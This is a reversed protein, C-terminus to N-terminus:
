CIRLTRRIPSMSPTSTTLIGGYSESDALTGWNAAILGGAAVGGGILLARRTIVLKM